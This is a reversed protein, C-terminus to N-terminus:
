RWAVYRIVAPPAVTLEAIGGLYITELSLIKGSKEGVVLMSYFPADPEPSTVRFAFGPRGLRDDVFGFSEVGPMASLMQLVASHQAPTLTWHNMLEAVADLLEVPDTDDIVGGFDRLYALMAAPDEPAPAEFLVTFRGRSYKEDRVVDGEKGSEELPIETTGDVAFPRGVTILMSGSLDEEWHIETNRPSVTSSSGTAGVETNVYWAQFSAERRPVAPTSPPTSLQRIATAMAEGTPVNEGKPELIPPTGAAAREDRGGIPVVNVLTFVLVFMFAVAPIAFWRRSWPRAPAPAADDHSKTIRALDAEARMTLPATLPTRAPDARRVLQDFESDDLM